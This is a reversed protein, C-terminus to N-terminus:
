TFFSEVRRLRELSSPITEFLQMDLYDPGYECPGFKYILPEKLVTFEQTYPVRDKLFEVSRHDPHEKYYTCTSSPLLLERDAREVLEYYSTYYSKHLYTPLHTLLSILKNRIKQLLIWENLPTKNNLRYVLWYLTNLDAEVNVPIGRELMANYIHFFCNSLLNSLTGTTGNFHARFPYHVSNTFIEEEHGKISELMKYQHDIHENASVTWRNEWYFKHFQFDIARSTWNSRTEPSLM